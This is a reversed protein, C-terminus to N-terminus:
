EIEGRARAHFEARAARIGEEGPTLRGRFEKRHSTDAISRGAQVLHDIASYLLVRESPTPDEKLEEEIEHIMESLQAMIKKRLHM